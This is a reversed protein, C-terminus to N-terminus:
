MCEKGVRREESRYERTYGMQVLKQPLGSYDYERGAEFRISDLNAPFLQMISEVDAIVIQVGTQMLHLATLRKYLADKSLADKYLIVEDKANLLACSKGSLASISKYAKAASVGDPAIYLIKQEPLSSLLYKHAESVGFVATPTGLRIDNGLSIYDEGLNRYTFFQNDM